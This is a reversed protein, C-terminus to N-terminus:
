PRLNLTSFNCIWQCIVVVVLDVVVVVLAVVVVVWDVVVVLHTRMYNRIHLIFQSVLRNLM